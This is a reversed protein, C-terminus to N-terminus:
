LDLWCLWSKPKLMRVESGLIKVSKSYFKKSPKEGTLEKSLLNVDGLVMPVPQCSCLTCAHGQKEKSKPPKNLLSFSPSVLLFIDPNKRLGIPLSGCLNLLMGQGKPWVLREGRYKGQM